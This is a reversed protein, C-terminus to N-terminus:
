PTILHNRWTAKITTGENPASKITFEGGTLEAREKMGKLGLSKATSSEIIFDLDMGIGDDSIELEIAGDNSALRVDVWESRGHKFTNNLAEQAIRFITTKLDYPIGQEEIATELEIHQNPYLKLLELRYWELTALLGFDSLVTPKLGMYIARTEDISRQLIPVFEHLLQLAQKSERKELTSIVHEIRFKLAALTQGISDHLDGALRKRENEQVEILRSPIARLEEEVRKRETIDFYVGVVKILEKNDKFIAAAACQIDRIAGDRPRTIRCEFIGHGCKCIEEYYMKVIRPVDDPCIIASWDDYAISEGSAIGLIDFIRDDWEIRQTKADLEWVGMKAVETALKLRQVYESLEATRKQVKLDLDDYSKHLEDEMQKRETIDRHQWMRGRPKGDVLIPTFDRLLVRGNSMLVEEDKIRHGQSRIQRLRAVSAVPDAYAPLLKQLMEAVTLGILASPAVRLDFQDCFNQNAFEVRDDEGIVLVGSFINALINHFRQVTTRFTEEAQRRETEREAALRLQEEAKNARAHARYAAEALYSVLAGCAAFVAMSILGAFNTIAFQGVPAIRLYGALVASVFTASLGASLGGYLAAVVVAPYFALFASRVELSGPFQWRIAAALIAVLIGVTCRLWVPRNTRDWVM